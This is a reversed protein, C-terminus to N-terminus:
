CETGRDVTRQRQCELDGNGIGLRDVPRLRRGHHGRRVRNIQDKASAYGGEEAARECWPQNHLFMTRSSVTMGGHLHLGTSRRGEKEM